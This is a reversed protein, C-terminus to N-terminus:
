RGPKPVGRWATRAAELVLVVLAIAGVISFPVPAVAVTIALAVFAILMRLTFREDTGTAEETVIAVKRYITFTPEEPQEYDTTAV